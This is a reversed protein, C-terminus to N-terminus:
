CRHGQLGWVIFVPVVIPATVVDRIGRLIRTTRGIEFRFSTVQDYRIPFKMESGDAAINSLSFSNASVDAPRGWRMARDKLTVQVIKGKKQAQTLRHILEDSTGEQAKDQAFCTNSNTIAMGVGVLGILLIKRM